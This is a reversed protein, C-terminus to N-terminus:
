TIHVIDGTEENVTLTEGPARNSRFITWKRGFTWQRHTHYLRHDGAPTSTLFTLHVGTVPDTVTKKESSFRRGIQANALTAILLLIAVSLFPKRFAPQKM